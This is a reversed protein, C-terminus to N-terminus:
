LEDEVLKVLIKYSEEDEDRLERFISALTMVDLDRMIAEALVIPLM